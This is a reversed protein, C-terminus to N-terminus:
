PAGAAVLDGWDKAHEPTQRRVAIAGAAYLDVAMRDVLGEGSSDNDLAIVVVRGECLRAWAQVWEDRASWSGTGPIGLTTAAISERDAQANLAIADIAGEVWAIETAPGLREKLLHVGWPWRKGRGTAFIYKKGKDSPRESRILRRQLNFVVGEPTRWPIMLRHEPWLWQGDKYSLGSIRWAEDGIEQVIAGRVWRLGESNPPLAWMHARAAELLRRRALYDCADQQRRLPCTLELISALRNFTDDDLRPPEPPMPPAPPATYTGDATIGAMECALEAVRRFDMRTDLRHVAAILSFVDGSLDCGFCKVRLGTATRTMSLSPTRDGHVACRVLIGNALRKFSRPGDLLGLKGAVDMPDWLAQRIADLDASV